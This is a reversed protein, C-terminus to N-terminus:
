CAKNCRCATCGIGPMDNRRLSGYIHHSLDSGGVIHFGIDGVFGKHPDGWVGNRKPTPDYALNKVLESEPVEVGHAQLAMKLTAVECSLSHEQRHFRIPLQVDMTGKVSMTGAVRGVSRVVVAPLEVASQQWLVVLLTSLLATGALGAGVGLVVKRM